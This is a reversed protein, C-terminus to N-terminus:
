HSSSFVFHILSNKKRFFCHFFPIQHCLFSLLLGFFQWSSTAFILLSPYYLLWSFGQQSSVLFDTEREEESQCSTCVTFLEFTIYLVYNTTDRKFCTVDPKEVRRVLKAACRKEDMVSLSDLLLSFVPFGGCSVCMHIMRRFRREPMM